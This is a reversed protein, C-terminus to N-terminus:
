PLMQQSHTTFLVVCVRVVQDPYYRRLSALGVHIKESDPGM